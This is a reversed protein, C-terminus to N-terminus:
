GINKNISVDLPKWFFGGKRGDYGVNFIAVLIVGILFILFFLRRFRQGRNTGLNEYFWKLFKM